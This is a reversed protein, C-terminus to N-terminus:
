LQGELQKAMLRYSEARVAADARSECRVRVGYTERVAKDHAGAAYAEHAAALTHLEDPTYPHSQKAKAWLRRAQQESVGWMMQVTLTNFAAGSRIDAIARAEDRPTLSDNRLFLGHMAYDPHQRRLTSHTM